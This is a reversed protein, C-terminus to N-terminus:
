RRRTGRRVRRGAGRRGARTPAMRVILESLSTGGPAAVAAAALLAVGHGGLLDLGSLFVDDIQLGGAPELAAGLRYCRRDREHRAARRHLWMEADRVAEDLDQIRAALDARTAGLRALLATYLAPLDAFPADDHFAM